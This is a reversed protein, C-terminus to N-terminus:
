GIVHIVTVIGKDKYKVFPFYSKINFHQLLYLRRPPSIKRLLTKCDVHSLSIYLDYDNDLPVVFTDASATDSIKLVTRPIKDIIKLKRGDKKLGPVSLSGPMEGCIAQVVTVPAGKEILDDRTVNPSLLITRISMLSHYYDLSTSFLSVNPHSSVGLVLSIFKDLIDKSMNYFQSVADIYCCIKCVCHNMCHQEFSIGGPSIDGCHVVDIHSGSYDYSFSPFMSGVITYRANAEGKAFLYDCSFLGFLISDIGSSGDIFAGFSINSKSFDRCVDPLYGPRCKFPIYTQWDVRSTGKCEAIYSLFKPKDLAVGQVIAQSFARFALYLHRSSLAIGCVYFVGCDYTCSVEGGAKEKLVAQPLLLCAAGYFGYPDTAAYSVFSMDIQYLKLDAVTLPLVMHSALKDNVM